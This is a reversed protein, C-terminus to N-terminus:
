RFKELIWIKLRLSREVVWRNKDEIEVEMKKVPSSWIYRYRKDRLGSRVKSKCM